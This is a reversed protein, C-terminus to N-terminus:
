EERRWVGFGARVANFALFGLPGLLFTLPLCPLVWGFGIKEARATRCIWAGVVLDFALFHIWGALLSDASAFLVTIEAFTGFGAGEEVPAVLSIGAYLLALGVPCVIGAFRDAGRPVYPSAVLALWGAMSVIGAVSFLVEHDM